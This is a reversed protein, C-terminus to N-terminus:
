TAEERQKINKKHTVWRDQRRRTLNTRWQNQRSTEEIPKRGRVFVRRPTNPRSPPCTNWVREIEDIDVKGRSDESILGRLLYRHVTQRSIGLARAAGSKSATRSM